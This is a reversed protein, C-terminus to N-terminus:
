LRGQLLGSGGFECCVFSQCKIQGVLWAVQFDKTKHAM